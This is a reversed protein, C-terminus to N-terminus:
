YGLLFERFVGEECSIREFFEDKLYAKNEVGWGIIFQNM